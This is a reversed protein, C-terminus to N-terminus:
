IRRHSLPINVFSGKDELSLRERMVGSGSTNASFSREPSGTLLREASLAGVEGRRGVLM